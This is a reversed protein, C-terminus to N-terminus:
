FCAFYVNNGIINVIRYDGDFNDTAVISLTEGIIFDVDNSLGGYFYPIGLMPQGVDITNYDITINEQPDLDFANREAGSTNGFFL